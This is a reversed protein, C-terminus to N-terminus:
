KKCVNCDARNHIGFHLVAPRTESTLEQFTDRFKKPLSLSINVNRLKITSKKQGQLSVVKYMLEEESIDSMQLAKIEKEFEFLKIDTEEILQFVRARVAGTWMPEGGLVTEIDSFLQKSARQTLDNENSVEPYELFDVIARDCPDISFDQESYELWRTPTFPYSSWKFSSDMALQATAVCVEIGTHPLRKYVPNATTGLASGMPASGFVPGLEHKRFNTAFTVSASASRGDILLGMKGDYNWKTFPIRGKTLITDNAGSISDHQVLAHSVYFTSDILHKLVHTMRNVSGGMNSRLDIVLAEVHLKSLAKFGKSIDRYYARNRGKSFSNIKLYAVNEEGEKPWVWEVPAGKRRTGGLDTFMILEQEVGDVLTKAFLTGESCGGMMMAIPAILAGSLMNEAHYNDGELMALKRAYDILVTDRVGCLETVRVGLHTYLNGGKVIFKVEPRGYKAYLRRGWDGLAVSTHSDKLTKLLEALILMQDLENSCPTAQAKALAADWLKESSRAYPDVHLKNIWADLTDIDSLLPADVDQSLTSGWILLALISAGLKHM